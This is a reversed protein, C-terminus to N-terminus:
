CWDRKSPVRGFVNRFGPLSISLDGALPSILKAINSSVQAFRSQVTSMSRSSHAIGQVDSSGHESISSMEETAAAISQVM